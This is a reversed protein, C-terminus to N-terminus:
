AYSSEPNDVNYQVLTEHAKRSPVDVVDAEKHFLKLKEKVDENTTPM